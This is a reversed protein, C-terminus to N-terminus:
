IYDLSMPMWSFISSFVPVVIPIAIIVKSKFKEDASLCINSTNLCFIFHIELIEIVITTSRMGWWCSFADGFTILLYLLALLAILNDYHLVM